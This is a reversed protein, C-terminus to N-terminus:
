NKDFVHIFENILNILQQSEKTKINDGIHIEGVSIPKRKLKTAIDPQICEEHNGPGTGGTVKDAHWGYMERQIFCINIKDTIMVGDSQPLEDMLQINVTTPKIIFENNYKYYSVILLDLWNHGVLIEVLITKDPVVLM